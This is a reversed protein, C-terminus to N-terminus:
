GRMWTGRARWRFGHEDLASEVVARHIPRIEHPLKGFIERVLAGFEITERGNTKDRLLKVVESMLPAPM